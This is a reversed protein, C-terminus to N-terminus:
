PLQGFSNYYWMQRVGMSVAPLLGQPGSEFDFRKNRAVSDGLGCTGERDRTNPTGKSNRERLGGPPSSCVSLSGVDVVVVSSFQGDLDGPEKDKPTVQFLLELCRFHSM